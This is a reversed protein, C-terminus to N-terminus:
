GSKKFGLQFIGVFLGATRAFGRLFTVGAFPFAEVKGEGLWWSIPWSLHIAAYAGLLLLLPWNSDIIGFISLIASTLVALVLIPELRDRLRTYDDGRIMEPHDKYLKARWFGHRYQELLYKWVKEPHYHAVKAQPRFAIRWGEKIIRYSFDNDEGSAQRYTPNFGGTARLVYRPIALNYSGFARIFGPMKRHREVIERHVWRALWSNTNAIEYSGAVAGVQSENFGDLLNELWDAVPICDSDTFCIVQGTASEWGRNRAAAPGANEQRIVTAGASEAVKATDDKSGDDVVIVEIELPQRAQAFSQEVAQGITSEANYAPIVVSVKM